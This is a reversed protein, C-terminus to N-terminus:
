LKMSQLRAGLYSVMSMKQVQILILAEGIGASLDLESDNGLRFRNRWQSQVRWYISPVVRHMGTIRFWDGERHLEEGKAPSYPLGTGQGQFRTETLVMRYESDILFLDRVESLAISHLFALQFTDRPNVRQIFIVQDDKTLTIAGLPYLFLAGGLVIVGSFLVIGRVMGQLLGRM